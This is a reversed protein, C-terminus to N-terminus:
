LECQRAGGTLCCSRAGVRSNVNVLEEWCNVRVLEVISNM